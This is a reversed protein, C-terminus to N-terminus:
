KVWEGGRNKLAKKQRRAMREKAKREKVLEDWKKRAYAFKIKLVALFLNLQMTHRFHMNM